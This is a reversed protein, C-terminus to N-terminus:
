TMKTAIAFRATKDGNSNSPFNESTVTDIESKLINEPTVGASVLQEEAVDPLKKNEFKYIEYNKACPSFYIKLNKPDIKYKEKLFEIFKKPGNEEINHRGSHLLGLLNKEEDFVIIGLCDALPLLLGVNEIKTVLGDSVPIKNEPNEINFESFNDDTIELYSTFNERNEYTTKLRAIKETEIFNGLKIQNEIIKNEDQGDFVRMNGDKIESIGIKVRELDVEVM